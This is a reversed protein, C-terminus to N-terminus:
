PHVGSPEDGPLTKAYSLWRQGRGTSTGRSTKGIPLRGANHPYGHAVGGVPRQGSYEGAPGREAGWRRPSTAGTDEPSRPYWRPRSSTRRPEAIDLIRRARGEYSLLRRMLADAETHERVEQARVLKAALHNERHRHLEQESVAFLSSLKTNAEGGVLAEDIARREPQDCVTCVRSMPEGRLWFVGLSRRARRHQAHTERSPHERRSPGPRVGGRKQRKLDRSREEAERQKPTLSNQRRKEKGDRLQSLLAYSNGKAYTPALEEYVEATPEDGSELVGRYEEARPPFVLALSEHDRFRDNSM